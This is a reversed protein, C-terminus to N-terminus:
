SKAKPKRKTLIPCSVIIKYFTGQETEVPDKSVLFTANDKIKAMDLVTKCIFKSRLRVGGKNVQLPFGQEETTKHLYWDKPNSEDNAFELRDNLSIGLDKALKSSLYMAGGDYNMRISRRGVREASTYSNELNYIVLKM